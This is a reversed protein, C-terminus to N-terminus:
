QRITLVARLHVVGNIFYPNDEAMFETWTMGFLNRCWVPKGGTLTFNGKYKSVFKETPKSRASFESDVAACSISGKEQMGLFLGFCHFTNQDMNCHASLFFGQGSLYFVHSCLQSAPFLRACEERKLDLYVICHQCPLEFQLVKVPRSKYAREVFQHRTASDEKAALSRQRYPAEAKFLLAGLVVKSAVEPDFDNCALVKKLKQCTMYPFRILHCLHSTLIERRDELKPYHIRAWKLVFDYISDESCVQLDDCSLVAEIGALPLNLLEDQFRALLALLDIYIYIYIYIYVYRM